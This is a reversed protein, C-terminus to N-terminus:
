LRNNATPYILTVFHLINYSNIVVTLEFPQTSNFTTKKQM